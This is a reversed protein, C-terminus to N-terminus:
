CTGELLEIAKIAQAHTLGVNRDTRIHYKELGPLELDDIVIWNEVKWHNVWDLIQDERKELKEDSCTCGIVRNVCHILHSRLLYEFGKLTMANKLIMYRWASCSVIKVDPCTDLIINLNTVCRQIFGSSKATDCYYHQNCVGDIDLFMVRDM